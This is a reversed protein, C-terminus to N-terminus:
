GFEGKTRSSRDCHRDTFGLLFGRRRMLRDRGADLRQGSPGGMDLPIVYRVLDAPAGGQDEAVIKGRDDGGSALRLDDLKLFLEDTL